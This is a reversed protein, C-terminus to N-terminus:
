LHYIVQQPSARTKPLILLTESRFLSLFVKLPPALNVNSFFSFLFCDNASAMKNKGLTRQPTQTGGVIRYLNEFHKLVRVRDYNWTIGARNIWVISRNEILTM